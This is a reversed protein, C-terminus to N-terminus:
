NDDELADDGLESYDLNLESSLSHNSENQRGRYNRSIIIVALLGFFAVIIMEYKSLYYVGMSTLDGIDARERVSCGLFEGSTAVTEGNLTFKCISDDSDVIGDGDDDSDVLDCVSDQDYDYWLSVSNKDLPDSGCELEQIDTSGDDDDDSDTNDGIGDGDTDIWESSDYPFADDDDLWMDGDDDSDANDGIGDEDYDAWESAILPFADNHDLIGDGDTDSDFPNTGLELEESDLLSDFDDNTDINDGFGDGDSDHWESVDIPFLDSYDNIGDGDTDPNRSDLGSRIEDDNPIGDGDIDVDLSDCIGDGDLDSPTWNFDSSDAGCDIEIQDM